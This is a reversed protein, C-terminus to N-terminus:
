KEEEDAELNEKASNVVRHPHPLDLLKITGDACSSSPTKELSCRPTQIKRRSSRLNVLNGFRQSRGRAHGAEERVYSLCKSHVNQNADDQRACEAPLLLMGDRLGVMRRPLWNLGDSHGNRRNSASCSKGCARQNRFTSSYERRADMTTGSVSQQVGTFQRYSGDRTQPIFAPFKASWM